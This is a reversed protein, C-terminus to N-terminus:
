ADCLEATYTTMPARFNSVPEEAKSVEVVCHGQAEMLTRIAEPLREDLEEDSRGHVILGRLDDSMAVLLGAKRHTVVNIRLFRNEIKSHANMM